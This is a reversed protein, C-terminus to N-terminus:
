DSEVLLVNFQFGADRDRDGRRQGSTSTVSMSRMKAISVGGVVGASVSDSSAVASVCGFPSSLSAVVGAIVSLVLWCGVFSSVLGYVVKQSHAPNVRECADSSFM